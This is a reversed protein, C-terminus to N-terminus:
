EDTDEVPNIKDILKSLHQVFNNNIAISIYDTLITTHENIREILYNINEVTTKRHTETVFINDTYGLGLITSIM